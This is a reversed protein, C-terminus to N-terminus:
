ECTQKVGYISIGLLTDYHTKVFEKKYLDSIPPVDPDPPNQIKIEVYDIKNKKLLVCATEKKQVGLLHAMTKNRGNTDYGQSWAFYPWGQYIKRGALTAPDYLYTTNLFVSNRPTNNKIWQAVSNNEYDAIAVKGDNLIPFLDIIGGFIMLFTLILVIPKFIIKKKWLAYLFYASFMNGVIVFFNFFKHNAAIEPSFQFTM